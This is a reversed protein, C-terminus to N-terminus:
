IALVIWRWHTIVTRLSLIGVKQLALMLLPLQFVLGLAVTLTLFFKFYLAVTFMPAIETWEMLRTLFYLGYPVMVFYGFAVGGILLLIAFPVTRYVVAREHSYLGAAIFAWIHWLLVPSAVICAFLLAAAMFTWFDELGSAAILNRKLLFGGQSFILEDYPYRHALIAERRERHWLVRVVGDRQLRVSEAYRTFEAVFAEWEASGKQPYPRPFGAVDRIAQPNPYGGALIAAVTKPELFESAKLRAEPDQPGPAAAHKAEIEECFDAYARNWMLAYPEIYIRTVRDKFAMLVGVCVFLTGACWLLRRRLEDLHDGLSMRKLQEKTPQPDM